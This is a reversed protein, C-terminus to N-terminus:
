RAALARVTTVVDKASWDLDGLVQYRVRGAPDILFSIPLAKAGWVRSAALDRDMAITLELPLRELFARVREDSEGYNVAVVTFREPGITKALQQISPMEKICPSCWTAWFNVLVVRGRLDKLDVKGGALTPLALAPADGGKWPRLEAAGLPTAAILLGLLALLASAFRVACEVRIWAIRLRKSDPACPGRCRYPFSM